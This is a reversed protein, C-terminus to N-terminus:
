RVSIYFQLPWTEFSVWSARKESITTTKLYFQPDINEDAIGFALRFIPLFRSITLDRAKHHLFTFTCIKCCGRGTVFTDADRWGLCMAAGVRINEIKNGQVLLLGFVHNVIEWAVLDDGVSEATFYQDSLFDFIELRYWRLMANDTFQQM